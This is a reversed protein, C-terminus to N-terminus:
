IKTKSTRNKDNTLEKLEQNYKLIHNIKRQTISPKWMFFYNAFFIKTSDDYVVLGDRYNNLQVHKYYYYEEEDIPLKNIITQIKRATNLDQNQVLKVVKLDGDVYYWGEQYQFRQIDETFDLLYHVQSLTLEKIYGLVLKLFQDVNKYLEINPIRKWGYWTSIFEAFLKAKAYDNAKLENLIKTDNINKELFLHLLGFPKFDNISTM